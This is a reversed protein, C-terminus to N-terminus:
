LIGRRVILCFKTAKKTAENLIFNQKDTIPVIPSAFNLLWDFKKFVV